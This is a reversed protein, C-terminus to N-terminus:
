VSLRPGQNGRERLREWYEILVVFVIFLASIASLGLALLSM